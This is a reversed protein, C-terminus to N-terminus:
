RLMKTLIEDLLRYLLIEPEQGDDTARLMECLDKMTLIIILKGNERLSGAAARYARDNAGSRAIIFCVSRLATTFLYKETLYIENQGIEEAYNKLEFVVYRSRFDHALSLWFDNTPRLRVLLDRRHFGDESLSQKHQTGFQDGFLHSLAETCIDEFSSWGDRGVPVENLRNCLKAGAKENASVQFEIPIDDLFQAADGLTGRDAVGVEILFSKLTEYVSTKSAESLTKASGLGDIRRGARRNNELEGSAPEHRDSTIRRGRDM